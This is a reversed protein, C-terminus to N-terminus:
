SKSVPRSRAHKLRYTAIGALTIIAIAIIIVTLYPEAVTTPQLNLLEVTGAGADTWVLHTGDTAIGYPDTQNSAVTFVSDGSLPAGMIKGSVRETWYINQDDATITYEDNPATHNYISKFQGTTLSIKRVGGWRYETWFLEDGRIVMSWPKLANAFHTGIGGQLPVRNIFSVDGGQTFGETWYIYGDYIAFDAIGYSGKVLSEVPGGDVPLRNINGEQSEAWYVYGEYVLIAWPFNQQTALVTVAGGTVPAKSVTGAIFDTWYVYGGDVMLGDPEWGGSSITTMNQGNLGIRNVEGTGHEGWYVYQGAIAVPHPEVRGSVLTVPSPSTEAGILRISTAQLLVIVMLLLARERKRLVPNMCKNRKM